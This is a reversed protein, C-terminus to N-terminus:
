LKIHTFQLISEDNSNVRNMALWLFSEVINENYVLQYKWRNKWWRFTKSVAYKLKKGITDIGVTSM